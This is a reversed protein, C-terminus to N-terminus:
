WWRDAPGDVLRDAATGAARAMVGTTLSRKTRAEVAGGHEAAAGGGTAAGGPTGREGPAGAYAARVSRGNEVAGLIPRSAETEACNSSM